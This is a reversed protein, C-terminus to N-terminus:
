GSNILSGTRDNRSKLAFLAVRDFLGSRYGVIAQDGYRRATQTGCYKGLVLFVELRYSGDHRELDDKNLSGLLLGRFILVRVM